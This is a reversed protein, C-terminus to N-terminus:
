KLGIAPDTFENTMVDSPTLGDKVPKREAAFVPKVADIVQQIRPVDFNGLTADSGNGVIGLKRMETVAFDAVGRSYVWGNNYKKVLELIVSNVAAPKQMFAVQARQVIPVLKKLCPALEAKRSPLIALTSAYSRYGADDILAFSVPKNWNKVEHQYIYPEATAFGQQAITGRSTVFRAPTGDYSGDVQSKKLIGRQTLYEMYAAGEFYLVKTDTKGIDAITHLNPHKSPDWMIMQPNRDLPAVVSLTPQKASYQASEETSVYGLTISKDAYMQATVQQFGIAPGGARVQLKVGTDVTGDVLPGTVRKKGADVSYGPGLMQYTGGHESEPNWDTQVVITSPCVSSLDQPGGAAAKTVAAASATAAGSGGSDGCGALAVVAALSLAAAAASPVRTRM